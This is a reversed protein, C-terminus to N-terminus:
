CYWIPFTYTGMADAEPILICDYLFLFYPIKIYIIYIHYKYLPLLTKTDSILHYKCLHCCVFHSFYFYICVTDVSCPTPALAACGLPLQVPPGRPRAPLAMAGRRDGEVLSHEGRGGRGWVGVAARCHSRSGLVTGPCRTAAEGLVLGPFAEPFQPGGPRGATVAAKLTTKAPLSSSPEPCAPGRAPVGVAATPQTPRDHGGTLAAMAWPPCRQRAAM